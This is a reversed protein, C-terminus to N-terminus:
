KRKKTGVNFNLSFPHCSNIKKCTVIAVIPYTVYNSNTDIHNHDIIRVKM